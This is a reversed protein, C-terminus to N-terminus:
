GGSGGSMNMRHDDHTADIKEARVHMCLFAFIFISHFTTSSCFPRAEHFARLFKCWSIAFSAKEGTEGVTDTSRSSGSRGDVQRTENLWLHVAKEQERPSAFRQGKSRFIYHQDEPELWPLCLCVDIGCQALHEARLLPNISTGTMWPLAATTVITVHRGPASLDSFDCEPSLPLQEQWHHQQQLEEKEHGCDRGALSRINHNSRRTAQGGHIPARLTISLPLASLVVLLYLFLLNSTM